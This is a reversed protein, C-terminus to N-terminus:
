EEHFFKIISDVSEAEMLKRCEKTYSGVHPTLIINDYKTLPGSYPEEKFTDLWAGALRGSEIATILASKNIVSGRSSNLLFSGQKMLEFEKEGLIEKNENVHISVIDAISLAKDLRMLEIGELKVQEPNVNPDVAIIKLGFSQLLKAVYRGIRGYGIIAVTKAKLQYGTKKSWKGCHLDRNMQPIFRLLSLMAGITLEAVAEVPAEPTSYVKIGLESAARLDINDTGSGCRSIVKLQSNKLIERDLAEIGAILGKVGPLLQSLEEKTLKRGFPNNILEFGEDSLKKLPAPDAAGFTSPGILIRKKISNRM